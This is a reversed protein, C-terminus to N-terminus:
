GPPPLDFPDPERRESRKLPEDSRQQQTQTGPAMLEEASSRESEGMAAVPLEKGAAPRLDTKNGCGALALAFLGIL